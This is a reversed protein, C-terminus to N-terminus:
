KAWDKATIGLRIAMQDALSQVLRTYADQEAIRTPFTQSTASYAANAYVTDTFLMGGTGANRVQYAAKGSLNYRTIEEDSSIILDDESITLTYSLYYPADAVARGLRNQLRERLEFAARGQKVEVAIQNPLNTASKGTGYVPEFGCAALILLGFGACIIHFRSLM